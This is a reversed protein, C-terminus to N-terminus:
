TPVHEPTPMGPAWPLGAAYEAQFPNRRLQGTDNDWRWAERGANHTATVAVHKGTHGPLLQCRVTVGAGAMTHTCRPDLSM